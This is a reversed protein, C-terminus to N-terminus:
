KPGSRSMTLVTQRAMGPRGATVRQRLAQYARWSAILTVGFGMMAAPLHTVKRLAPQLWLRRLRITLAGPFLQWFRRGRLHQDVLKQLWEPDCQELQRMTETLKRRQALPRSKLYAVLAYVTAEGILQRREDELEGRPTLSAAFMHAAEPVLTVRAPDTGRILLDSCLLERLLGEENGLSRPLLIGRAVPARVCYLQGCIRGRGTTAMESAALSIRDWLTKRAKFLVEPCLRGTAAHAYPRSQLAGFLSAISSRHLFVIDADMLCLFRAELSSFEHVFRNWANCRGGEPLEVVRASFADAWEHTRTAADCVEQAIAATRDTCGNAVVIVECQEHRSWVKELITQRFLSELTARISGEENCAMIGISLCIPNKKCHTAMPGFRRELLSVATYTGRAYSM